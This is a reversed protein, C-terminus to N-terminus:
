SQPRTDGNQNNAVNHTTEDVQTQIKTHTIRSEYYSKAFFACGLLPFDDNKILFVPIKAVDEGHRPRASFRKQFHHSLFDIQIESLTDSWLFISHRCNFTNALNGCMAGFAECFFRVASVAPNNNGSFAAQIIEKYSLKYNPSYERDFLFYNYIEKMGRHSLFDENSQTKQVYDVLKIADNWEPSFTSHGGESTEIYPLEGWTARRTVAAVGLGVGPGVVLSKFYRPDNGNGSEKIDAESKLDTLSGSIPILTNKEVGFEDIHLVGYALSEFDNLLSVGSKHGASHLREQIKAADITVIKGIHNVRIVDGGKEGVGVKVQGGGAIV